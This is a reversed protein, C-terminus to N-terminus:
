FYNAVIFSYFFYDSSSKFFKKKEWLIARFDIEVYIKLFYKQASAKIVCNDCL